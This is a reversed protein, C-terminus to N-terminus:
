FKSYFKNNTELCYFVYKQFISVKNDKWAVLVKDGNYVAESTGRDVTKKELDKKAIIPIRHLRNQRVTGTGSVGMKSLKDLLPFSTFLNDFYLDSGAPM